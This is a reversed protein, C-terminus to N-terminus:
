ASVAMNQAKFISEEYHEILKTISESWSMGDFESESNRTLSEALGDSLLIGLIQDAMRRTDWYDSKFCSKIVESAGSQLSIIAPTGYAMSELAAVGFPESVSPMVFVDGIAFADPIVQHSDKIWGTFIINRAIGLEAAREILEHYMDGSGVVLLYTDPHVAVVNRMSELLYPLGKQITLRGVSVVVKAGRSKLERLYSFTNHESDHRKIVDTSNHVVRIKGPDIHYTDILVNRTYNSIAIVIDASDLGSLEIERIMPDGHGAGARDYETSHVHVVLPKGSESKILEGAKYTLWDHAHIVDFDKERAAHVANRAYRNPLFSLDGGFDYLSVAEEGISGGYFHTLSYLSRPDSSVSSIKMFDSSIEDHAYPLLFDIDISRGSLEKCMQHCVIGLGGSHLPPLEWGLMLIKM